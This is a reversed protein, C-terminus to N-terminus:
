LISSHLSMILLILSMWEGSVDQISETTLNCNWVNYIRIFISLLYKKNCPIQSIPWLKESGQISEIYEFSQRPSTPTPHIEGARQIQTQRHSKSKTFPPFYLVFHAQTTPSSKNIERGHNHTSVPGWFYYVCVDLCPNLGLQIWPKFCFQGTSCPGMLWSGPSGCIQLFMTVTTYRQCNTTTKRYVFAEQFLYHAM